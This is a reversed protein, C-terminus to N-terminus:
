KLTRIIEIHDPSQHSWALEYICYYKRGLSSIFQHTFYNFRFRKDALTNRHVLRENNKISLIELLIGHNRKLYENIRRGAIHSTKRLLQHYVNKCFVTCFIKDSRGTFETRCMKCKRMSALQDVNPSM